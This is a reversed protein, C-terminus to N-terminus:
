FFGKSASFSRPDSWPLHFKFPIGRKPKPEFVRAFDGIKIQKEVAGADYRDKARDQILHMQVLALAYGYELRAVLDVAYNHMQIASEPRDVTLDLPRRMSRRFQLYDPSYGTASHLASNYAMMFSPLYCDSDEPYHNASKALMDKLTRILREM